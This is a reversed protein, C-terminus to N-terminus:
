DYDDDYASGFGAMKRQRHAQDTKLKNGYRKPPRLVKQCSPCARYSCGPCQLLYRYRAVGCRECINRGEVKNWWGEHICKSGATSSAFGHAPYASSSTDARGFSRAPDEQHAQNARALREMRRKQENRRKEVEVLRAQNIEEQRKLRAAEEAAAREQWERYQKEQEERFAKARAEREVREKELREKQARERAEREARERERQIRDKEQQVREKKVRIREEFVCRNKQYKMNESAFEREGDLLIKEWRGLEEEKNGLKAEHIRISHMRGIRERAKREKEEETEVPKGNLPSLLWRGWSNKAAEEEKEKKVKDEIERIAAQLKRVERKLEFIQDDYVKRSTSWRAAREAKSKDLAAIGATEQSIDIEEERKQNTQPATSARPQSTAKSKIQLYLRDYSRRQNEDKLTEYARGLLQFAETTDHERNRDPHLVLALKRYSKIIADTTASQDVKLVLYYDETIAVPAM